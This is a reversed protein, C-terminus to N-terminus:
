LGDSAGDWRGTPTSAAILALGELVLDARVQVGTELWPELLRADGGALFVVPAQGLERTLLGIARDFAAAPALWAGHGVAEDTSRGFLDLGVPVRAASVTAGIRHTSRELAAAVIRWGPLILGGLHRGSADVADLTLATGANIACAARPAAGQATAAHHAAVVAVWRDVGLRSPDRYGCRVGFGEAAPAVFEPALGFRRETLAALAAAIDDGAVNAVVIREVREPFGAAAAELAAKTDGAHPAHGPAVIAGNAAAAWKIRANGIDVVLATL